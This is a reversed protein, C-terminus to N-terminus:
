NRRSTARGESTPIACLVCVCVFVSTDSSNLSCAHSCLLMVYNLSVGDASILIVYDHMLYREGKEM